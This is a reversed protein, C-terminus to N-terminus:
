DPLRITTDARLDTPDDLGNLELIERWRSADGLQERAIRGLM